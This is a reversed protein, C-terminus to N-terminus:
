VPNYKRRIKHNPANMGQKLSDPSSGAYLLVTETLYASMPRVNRPLAPLGWVKVRSQAVSKAQKNSHSILVSILQTGLKLVSSSSDPSVFNFANTMGM